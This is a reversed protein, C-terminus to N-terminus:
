EPGYFPTTFSQTQGQEEYKKATILTGDELKRLKEIVNVKVWLTGHVHGAGRDQFEGKYSFKDINM